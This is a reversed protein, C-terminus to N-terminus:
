DHDPEDSVHSEPEELAGGCTEDHGLYFGSPTQGTVTVGCRACSNSAHPETNEGLRAIVARVKKVTRAESAWTTGMLVGVIAEDVVTMTYPDLPRDVTVPPMNIATM